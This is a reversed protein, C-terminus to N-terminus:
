FAGTGNPTGLGTPGDYGAVGTCLYTGGCAGNSGGIVDFLGGESRYPDSGYRVRDTNGALAYVAAVIPSSASTGGVVLWGDFGYTDYVALGTEPDAVASVDAVTRKACLQDHQWGPKHIYASCGSTAGDWATEHWGRADASRVLSTGGVATVYKSAAPYSVSGVLIRGNGYGYDGSSVTVAVGTHEYFREFYQEGSFEGISGYSNSVADAGLRVATDVAPGLDLLSSSDAEVLLINCRPCVASVADLDLSIELGWGPDPSPLTGTDGRQSVKKFCGNSTTCPPLGYADRYAALDAEANPDDYADVVAVTTGAGRDSPLRYAAQLDAPGYGTPAGDAGPGASPQVLAMCQAYPPAVPTSCARYVGSAPGSAPAGPPTVSLPYARVIAQEIRSGGADSAEVRLSAFGSTAGLPPQPYTARYRGGGLDTVGSVPTWTSGDDFSASLSLRTIPTEAAHAQHRVALDITAPSGAAVVDDLGAHTDYGVFLLPEFSCGDAAGSQGGGSVSRGGGGGGGKGGCTWGPPLPDPAREESTFTWETHTRTTANWWPAQRSVDLDLRYSAPNPSMPFQAPGNPQQGVLSGDQYLSLTAEESPDDMMWHGDDDVFPWVTALLTDGARCVPCPQGVVSEQELGPPEPQASWTATLRQGASYARWVDNTVGSFSSEDLVVQQLWATDPQPLVHETRALPATLESLIGSISAMWPAAVLRSELERRGPVTSHYAVDVTAFRDATLTQDLVRPIAGAYSLDLDYLYRDLAREPDGLRLYPYFYLSGQTVPATPTAYVPTSQTLFSTTFSPGRAPNRQLNLEAIVQSTPEPVSASVLNAKRADLVVVTNSRVTAEPLTVLSFDADGQGRVTSIYSAIQYTGAPVSFSLTGNFFSQAALFANGDDADFVDGLDGTVKHGLRDFAKVTLTYLKGPPQGPPAPASLPATGSGALAIREIGDFLHGSGRGLKGDWWQAALARGFRVADARAERATTPGTLTMGPLPGTAAGAAYTVNLDLSGTDSRAALDTVDFLGLDLPAGIYGAADQPIVYVHGQATLTQFGVPSGEHGAPAVTVMPRGNPQTSVAVRDGTILTVIVPESSLGPAATTTAAGPSAGVTAIGVLVLSAAVVLRLIRSRM